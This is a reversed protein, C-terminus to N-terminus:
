RTSTRRGTNMPRSGHQEHLVADRTSALCPSAIAPSRTAPSPATRLVKTTLPDFINRNGGRIPNNFDWRANDRRCTRTTSRPQHGTAELWRLLIGPQPRRVAQSRLDARGGCRRVPETQCDAGCAPVRQPREAQREAPVGVGHTCNTPAPSPPWTSPAAPRWGSTRRTTTRSYRSSPSRTSSRPIAYANGFTEINVVGDLLYM